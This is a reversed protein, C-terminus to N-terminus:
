AFAPAACWAELREVAAALEDASLRQPRAYGVAAVRRAPGRGAAADLVYRIPLAHAVVLVSAEPRALVARFGDAYRRAVAARSEAGGPGAADADAAWAWTRYEDLTRGEYGGVRIDNLEPVVLRPVERGALALDATERTRAFETHVCLDLPTSALGRGLARAQERGADTLGECARPDGNVLARVSFRSEGHRALFLTEV